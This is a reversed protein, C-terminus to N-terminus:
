QPMACLTSTILAPCENIEQTQWFPMGVVTTLTTRCGRENWAQARQRAHANAEGDVALVDFWCAESGAPPAELQAQDIDDALATGLRYGCVEIEGCRALTERLSSRAGRASEDRDADGLADRTLRMRLFQQLFRRGSHVPQWLLLKAPAGDARALEAALLCGTRLGWLWPTAGRQALWDRATRVDDMWISWTADRFEGASDGCGHLDIQLVDYGAQAFARSQLAAMRRAKNMEEGFPHIYLITGRSRNADLARHLVCFRRGHRTPLYFADM